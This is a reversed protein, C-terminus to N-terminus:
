ATLGSVCVYHKGSMCHWVFCPFHKCLHTLYALACAFMVGLSLLFNHAVKPFRPAFVRALGNGAKKGGVRRLQVDLQYEQGPAGEELGKPKAQTLHPHRWRIDVM